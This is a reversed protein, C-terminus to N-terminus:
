ESPKSRLVSCPISSPSLQRRRQRGTKPVLQAFIFAVAPPATYIKDAHPKYEKVALLLPPGDGHARSSFHPETRTPSTVSERHLRM